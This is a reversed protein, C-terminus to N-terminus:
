ESDTESVVPSGTREAAIRRVQQAESTPAVLVRDDYAAVILDTTGIVDVIMEEGAAVICKRADHTRGDGLCVNGDGDAERVRALADWSGLDDWDFAAPVVYVSEARELVAYDVSVPEIAAFGAEPDGADFHAVAPELTPTRAAALFADPTWAFMGANWLSEHRLTKATARDPKEVFQEVRHYVTGDSLARERGPTIYGFGPAPRSPEVGITVLGETERAVRVARRAVREFGDGVHHDSPLCLLVTDDARDRLEHAAYALAPGTDKAAPEVLVGVDPAQHRVADVHDANTLVYTADAFSTREITQRLLTQDGGFSRFQKPRDPRSAPYLRTGTGGALVVAVIDM